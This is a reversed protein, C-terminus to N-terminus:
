PSPPSLKPGLLPFRGPPPPSSGVTLGWLARRGPLGGPGAVAEGAGPGVHHATDESLKLARGSGLASFRVVQGRGPEM